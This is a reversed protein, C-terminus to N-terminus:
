GGTIPNEICVVYITNVLMQLRAHCLPSENNRGCLRWDIYIESLSKGYEEIKDIMGGEKVVEDPSFKAVLLTGEIKCGKDEM